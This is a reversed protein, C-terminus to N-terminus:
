EEALLLLGLEFLLQRLEIMRSDNMRLRQTTARAIATKSLLEGLVVNSWTFHESWDDLRPNFLPVREGTQPDLGDTFIWKHANCHPCALALNSPDSAGGAVM